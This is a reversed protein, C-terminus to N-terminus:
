LLEDLWVYLEVYFTRHITGNDSEPGNIFLTSNSNPDPYFTHSYLLRFFTTRVCM